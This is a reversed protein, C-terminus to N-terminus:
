KLMDLICNAVEQASYKDSLLEKVNGLETIYNERHIKNYLNKETEYCINDISFKAQILEPVIEKQTVINPLSVYKICRVLLYIIYLLWPGKYSIIMPTQYISAELAVTGSALILSDSVSLLAHNDGKIVKFDTDKIYKTFIDDSLNPAHSICFQLEPHLKQLKKAAKIFTGALYNLELPRSGPFISVLPRNIDLNYKEFFINKDAKPPLQKVLPHGCYHVDIGYSKYLDVEFPFICLVKDVYKKIKKIRWKRSAWVQPPIYHVVKIGHGKLKKAVRLNFTGYDILLVLDPKYEDLIYKCLKTELKLHDVIMKFNLGFGAMNSHDCFIKAGANKLNDGGIGQIEIDPNSSKLVQVVKGAHIDGSHEGTIVFIKKM